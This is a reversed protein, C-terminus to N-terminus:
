RALRLVGTPLSTQSLQTFNFGLESTEYEIQELGFAFWGYNLKFSRLVSYEDRVRYTLTWRVLKDDVPSGEMWIEYFYSGVQECAIQRPSVTQPKDIMMVDVIILGNADLKKALSRWMEQRASEDIFGISGLIFVASLREPLNIDQVRDSFVTVRQRLKKSAMIRSMLGVRMVSSPEIAIINTRSLTEAILEVGRGTGAGVDIVPGANVPVTRLESAIAERRLNWEEESLIEYFEGSQIYPEPVASNMHNSLM